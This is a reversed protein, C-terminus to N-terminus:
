KSQAFKQLQHMEMVHEWGPYSKELYFKCNDVVKHNVQEQVQTWWMAYRSKSKLGGRPKGVGLSSDVVHNVQVQVITWWTM